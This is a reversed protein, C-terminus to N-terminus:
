LLWEKEIKEIEAEIEKIELTLSLVKESMEKVTQRKQERIKGFETKIYEEDTGTVACINRFNNQNLVKEDKFEYEKLEDKTKEVKELDDLWIAYGDYPQIIYRSNDRFWGCGWGKCMDLSNFKVLYKGDADERTDIGVVVGVEESLYRSDNSIVKDGVNFKSM